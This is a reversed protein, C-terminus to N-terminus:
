QITEKKGSALGYLEILDSLTQQAVQMERVNPSDLTTELEDVAQALRPIDQSEMETLEKSKQDLPVRIEGNAIQAYRTLATLFLAALRGLRSIEDLGITDNKSYKDTIRNITSSIELLKTRVTLKNMRNAITVIKQATGKIDKLANLREQRAQDAALEQMTKPNLILQLGLYAIIGAVLGVLGKLLPDAPTVLAALVVILAALVIAFIDKFELKDKM